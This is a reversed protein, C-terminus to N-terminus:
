YSGVWKEGVVRRELRGGVGGIEEEIEMEASSECNFQLQSTEIKLRWGGSPRENMEKIILRM